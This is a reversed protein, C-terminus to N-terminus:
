KNKFTEMDKLGQEAAAQSKYSSIVEGTTHSVVVWPADEGQSNKHGPRHEVYEKLRTEILRTM